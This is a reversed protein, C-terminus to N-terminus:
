VDKQLLKYIKNNQKVFAELCNTPHLFQHEKRSEFSLDNIIFLGEFDKKGESTYRAIKYTKTDIGEEIKFWAGSGIGGLWTGNELNFVELNPNETGKLNPEENFKNLFYGRYEKVISRNQYDNIKQYLVEYIKNDSNGKIVNGIPSPTLYNSSKTKNYNKESQM